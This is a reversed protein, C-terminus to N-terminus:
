PSAPPSQPAITPKAPEDVRRVGVTIREAGDPTALTVERASIKEVKLTPKATIGSDVKDGVGILKADASKGTGTLLLAKWEGGSARLVGAVRRPVAQLTTPAPGDAIPEQPPAPAGPRPKVVYVTAEHNWQFPVTSKQGARTLFDDLTSGGGRLTLTGSVAPDISFDARAGTLIAELAQRLPADRFDIYYFPLSVPRAPPAPRAPDAVIVKGPVLVFPAQGPAQAPAETPPPPPAEPEQARAPTAIAWGAAGVIAGAYQAMYKYKM